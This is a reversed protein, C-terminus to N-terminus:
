ALLFNGPFKDDPFLDESHSDKGTLSLVQKKYVLVGACSM